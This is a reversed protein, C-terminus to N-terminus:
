ITQTEGPLWQALWFLGSMGESGNYLDMSNVWNYAINFSPFSFSYLFYASANAAVSSAGVIQWPEKRKIVACSVIRLSRATKGLWPHPQLCLDHSCKSRSKIERSGQWPENGPSTRSIMQVGSCGFLFLIGAEASRAPFRSEVRKLTKRTPLVLYFLINEVM